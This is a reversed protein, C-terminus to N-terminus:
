LERVQGSQFDVEAEALLDDLRGSQADADIQRDWVALDFEAFWRRFEALDQLPLARVAEEISKVNQMATTTYASVACYAGAVLRSRAHHRAM